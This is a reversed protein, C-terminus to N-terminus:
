RNSEMLFLLVFGSGVLHLLDGTLLSKVFIIGNLIALGINVLKWM